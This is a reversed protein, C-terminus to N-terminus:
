RRLRHTEKYSLAVSKNPTQLDVHARRTAAGNKAYRAGNPSLRLIVLRFGESDGGIDITAVTSAEMTAM